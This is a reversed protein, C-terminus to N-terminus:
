KRYRLHASLRVGHPHTSQFQWQARLDDMRKKDCGTRTRPNFGEDRHRRRRHVRRVGHPHTSQFPLPLSVGCVVRTAGRAPAHISVDSVSKIVDNYDTAGRAPAHISVGYRRFKPVIPVTAGRAPAHISVSYRSVPITVLRDCGMRTRPNFGTTDTTNSTGNHRVGHPHTSQFLVSVISFYLPGTAGWAPAHISVM